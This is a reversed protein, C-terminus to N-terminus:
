GRASPRRSKTLRRRRLLGSRPHTKRIHKNLNDQRNFTSNCGNVPCDFSDFNEHRTRIHRKLNSIRDQHLGRFVQGCVKCFTTDISSSIPSPLSLPSYISDPSDASKHSAVSQSSDTASELDWASSSPPSEIFLRNEDLPESWTSERLRHKPSVPTTQGHLSVRAARQQTKDIELSIALVGNLDAIYFPDRWNEPAEQMNKDCVAAVDGLFREYVHPTVSM